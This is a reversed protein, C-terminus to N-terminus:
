VSPVTERSANRLRSFNVPSMGLYSAIMHHPVRAELEPFQARLQELRQAGSLAALSWERQAMRLLEHRLVAEGWVRVPVHEVMAQNLLRPDFVAVRSLELAVCDVRSRGQDSRTIAPPLVCPALHFGLTVERGHADTVSTRLLGRLVFCEQSEPQGTYWLTQGPALDRSRLLRAVPAFEDAALSAFNRAMRLAQALDSPTASLM